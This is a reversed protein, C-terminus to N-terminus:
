IDSMTANMLGATLLIPSAAMGLAVLVPYTRLRMHMHLLWIHFIWAM